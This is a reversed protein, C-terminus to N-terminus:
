SPLVGEGTEQQQGHPGEKERRFYGWHQDASEGSSGGCPLPEWLEAVM